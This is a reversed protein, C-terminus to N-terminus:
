DAESLHKVIAPWATPTRCSSCTVGTSSSWGRGPSTRLWSSAIPRRRSGTSAAVASWHPARSTASALHPTTTAARRSSSIFGAHQNPARGLRSRGHGRRHPAGHGPQGGALGRGLAHGAVDDAARGAAWRRSRDARAVPVLIRGRGRGVHLRARAPAGQGPAAAHAGPRGHRRLVRRGGHLTGMRTCRATRRRGRRVSGHQVARAPRRIARPGRQDFCLVEFSEALEGTRPKPRRRLDDGTGSIFFVRPGSGEVEYYLNVGDVGAFPVCPVTAIIAELGSRLAPRTPGPVLPAPLSTTGMLWRDVAAACSRGEAIAWVILSQGRTQDGCVFVGM